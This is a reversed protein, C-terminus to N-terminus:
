FFAAVLMFNNTDTSLSAPEIIKNATTRNLKGEFIENFVAKSKTTAIEFMM